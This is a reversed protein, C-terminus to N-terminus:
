RSDLRAQTGRRGGVDDGEDPRRPHGAWGPEARRPRPDEGLGGAGRARRKTGLHPRSGAGRGRASDRPRRPGGPARLGTRLRPEGGGAARGAARVSAASQRPRRRRLWHASPQQCANPRARPGPRPPRATRARSTSAARDRGRGAAGDAARVARGQEGKPTRRRRGGGRAEGAGFGAPRHGHFGDARGQPWVGLTGPHSPRPRGPNCTWAAQFPALCSHKGLPVSGRAGAGAQLGLM